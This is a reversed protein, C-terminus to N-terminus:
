TQFYHQYDYAASDASPSPVIGTQDRGEVAIPKASAVKKEPPMQVNVVPKTDPVQALAKTQGDIKKNTDFQLSSALRKEVRNELGKISNPNQSLFTRFDHGLTSEDEAAMDQLFKKPNKKDEPHKQLVSAINTEGVNGYQDIRDSFYSVVSKDKILSPDLGTKKLDGEVRQFNNEYYWDLQATKMKQQTSPDRSAKEWQKNFEESGIPASLGLEPHKSVFQKMGASASNLGMIGYSTTGNTDPSHNGLAGSLDKKIDVGREFMGTSRAIEDSFERDTPSDPTLAAVKKSTNANTKMPPHSPRVPEDHHHPIEKPTSAKAASFLGTLATGGTALAALILGQKLNTKAAEKPGNPKPEAPEPEDKNQKLELEKIALGITNMGQVLKETQDTIDTNTAKVDARVGVLTAAIDSLLGTVRTQANEIDGEELTKEKAARSPKVRKPKKAPPYDWEHEQGKFGSKKRFKEISEEIEDEHKEEQRADVMDNGRDEDHEDAPASDKADDKGGLSPILSKVGKFNPVFEEVLAGGEAEIAALGLGSM